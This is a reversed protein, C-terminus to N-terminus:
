QQGKGDEINKLLNRMQDIEEKSINNTQIDLITRLIKAFLPNQRIIVDSEVKLQTKRHWAGIIIAAPIYIIVFILIFMWLETFIDNLFEIREILLRHFILIFNAFTLLFILYVGHGQRFDFWRRRIWYEKM